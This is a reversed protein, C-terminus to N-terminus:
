SVARAILPMVKRTACFHEKNTPPAPLLRRTASPSQGPMCSPQRQPFGVSPDRPSHDLSITTAAPMAKEAGTWCVESSRPSCSQCITVASRSTRAASPVRMCGGCCGDFAPRSLLGRWLILCICTSNTSVRFESNMGATSNLHVDPSVHVATRGGRPFVCTSAPYGPVLACMCHCAQLVPQSGDARM